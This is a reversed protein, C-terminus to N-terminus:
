NKGYEFLIGEIRGVIEVTHNEFISVSMERGCLKIKGKHSKLHIDESSLSCISVIGNLMVSIGGMVRDAELHFTPLIVPTTGNLMDRENKKTM